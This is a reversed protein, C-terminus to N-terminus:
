PGRVVSQLRKTRHRAAPTQSRSRSATDSAQSPSMTIISLRRADADALM